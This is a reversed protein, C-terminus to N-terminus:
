KGYKALIRDKFTEGKKSSGSIISPFFEKVFDARLNVFPLDKEKGNKDTITKQVEEVLWDTKKNAVCWNEIFEPAIDATTTPVFDADIRYEKEVVTKEGTEKNIVTHKKIITEIKNAM